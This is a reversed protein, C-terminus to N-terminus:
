PSGRLVADRPSKEACPRAAASQKAWTRATRALHATMKRFTAMSSKALPRTTPPPPLAPPPTPPPTPPIGAPPPPPPPTAQQCLLMLLHRVMSHLMSRMAVLVNLVIQPTTPGATGRWITPLQLAAMSSLLRSNEM